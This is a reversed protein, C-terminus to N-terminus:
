TSDIKIKSKGYIREADKIITMVDKSNGYLACRVSVSPMPNEVAFRFCGAMFQEDTM